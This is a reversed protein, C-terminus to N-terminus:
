LLERKMTYYNHEQYCLEWGERGFANLSEIPTSNATNGSDPDLWVTRYEFRKHARANLLPDVNMTTTTFHDCYAKQKAKNADCATLCLSCDCLPTGQDRPSMLGGDRFYSCHVLEQLNGALECEPNRCLSCHRIPLGRKLGYQTDAYLKM